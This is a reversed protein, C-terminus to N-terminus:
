DPSLIRLRKMANLTEFMPLGVVNTYSGEIRQIMYAAKGQIAYAGAKDKPEGTAVYDKIEGLSLPAMHVVTSVVEQHFVGAADELRIATMVEHKRASLKQLMNVAHEDDRPKGLIEGDLVVVTDAGLIWGSFVQGLGMKVAKVKQEVIRQVIEGPTEGDAAELVDSPILRFSLGIQDLFDKRRPSASALVLPAM